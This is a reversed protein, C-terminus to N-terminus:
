ILTLTVLVSINLNVNYFINQGTQHRYNLVYTCSLFKKSITLPIQWTSSRCSKGLKSDKIKHHWHYSLFSGPATVYSTWWGKIIAALTLYTWYRWIDGVNESVRCRSLDKAFQRNQRIALPANVIRQGTCIAPAKPSIFTGPSIGLKLSTSVSRENTFRNEVGWSTIEIRTAGWTTESKKIDSWKGLAMCKHDGLTLKSRDVRSINVSRERKQESWASFICSNGSSFRLSM